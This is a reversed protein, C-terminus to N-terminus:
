EETGIMSIHEKLIDDKSKGCYPCCIWKQKLRHGCCALTVYINECRLRELADMLQSGKLTMKLENAKNLIDKAQELNDFSGMHVNLNNHPVPTVCVTVVYRGGYQKISRCIRKYEAM